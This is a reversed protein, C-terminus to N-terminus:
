ENKEEGGKDDLRIKLDALKSEVEKEKEKWYRIKDIKKKM